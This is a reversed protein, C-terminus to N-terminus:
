SRNIIIMRVEFQWKPVEPMTPQPTDNDAIEIEGNDMTFNGEAKVLKEVCYDADDEAIKKTHLQFEFKIQQHKDHVCNQVILKHLIM